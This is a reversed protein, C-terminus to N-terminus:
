QTLMLFKGKQNFLFPTINHSNQRHQPRISLSTLCQNSLCLECETTWFPDCLEGAFKLFPPRWRIPPKQSLFCTTTPTDCGHHNDRTRININTELNEIIIFPSFFDSQNQQSYNRLPKTKQASFPRKLLQFWGLIFYNAESGAFDWDRWEGAPGTMRDIEASM